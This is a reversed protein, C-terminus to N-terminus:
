EASPTKKLFTEVTQASPKEGCLMPAVLAIFRASAQAGLLPEIDAHLSVACWQSGFVNALLVVPPGLATGPIEGLAFDRLAEAAQVTRAAGRAFVDRGHEQQAKADAEIQPAIQRLEELVAVARDRREARARAEQAAFFMAHRCNLIAAVYDLQAADPLPRPRKSGTLAATM